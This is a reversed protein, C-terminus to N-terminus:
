GDKDRFPPGRRLLLGRDPRRTAAPSAGAHDQALAIASALALEVPRQVPSHRRDGPLILPLRQRKTLHPRPPVQTWAPLRCVTPGEDRRRTPTSEPMRRQLASSSHRVRRPELMPGGRLSRRSGRSGGCVTRRSRASALPHPSYVAAPFLPCLNKSIPRLAAAASPTACIFAHRNPCRLHPSDGWGLQM